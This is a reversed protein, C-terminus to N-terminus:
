NLELYKIVKEFIRGVDALDASLSDSREIDSANGLMEIDTKIQNGLIEKETM